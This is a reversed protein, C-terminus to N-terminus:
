AITLSKLIFDRSTNGGAWIYDGRWATNALPGVAVGDDVRTLKITTPTVDFRLTVDGGGDGIAASAATGLSTPAGYGVPAEWIVLQGSKRCTFLYGRTDADFNSGEESPCCIRFPPRDNTAGVWAGYNIVLTLSYTGAKPGSVSGLQWQRDTLGTKGLRLGAPSTEFIPYQGAASANVKWGAGVRQAAVEQAISLRNDTKELYGPADSFYGQLGATMAGKQARSNIANAVVRKITTSALALNVITTSATHPVSVMWAGAAEAQTIETTTTCDYMMALCGNGVVQACETNSFTNVIVSRQLGYKKILACVKDTDAPSTQKVEVTMPVRRGYREFVGALTPMPEPEWGEGLVTRLDVIPLLHTPFSNVNGTGDTTADLTTDHMLVLDGNQTITVDFDLMPAGLGLALDLAAYTNEPALARQALHSGGGRHAIWLNSTPLDNVSVGWTDASQQISALKNRDTAQGTCNLDVRDNTHPTGVTFAGSAQWIHARVTNGGSNTFKVAGGICGIIATNINAGAVSVSPSTSGLEIGVQDVINGVGTSKYFMGGIISCDNALVHVQKDGGEGQCNILHATGELKWSESHHGYAHCGYFMTASARAKVHIGVAGQHFGGSIPGNYWTIVDRVSSDHPGDYVFGPGINNHIHMNSITAEMGETTALATGWESYFGGSGSEYIHVNAIDYYYGYIEIGRGTAGGARNCDISCDRLGFMKEGGSSNTGTLTAFNPVGVVPATSGNAAKLITKGVGACQLLAGTKILVNCIYTGAQLQWLGGADIAAQINASDTAAVGTPAPVLNGATSGTSVTVAGSGNDTVTGSTFRITSVNPVSPIGDVEEVTVLTGSAGGVVSGDTDSIPPGDKIRMRDLADVWLHYIGLTPHDQNWGAQGLSHDVSEVPYRETGGASIYIIVIELDSLTDPGMM